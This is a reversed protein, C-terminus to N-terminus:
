PITVPPPRVLPGLRRRRHGGPRPRRRGAAFTVEQVEETYGVRSELNDYVAQLDAASPADFSQGGTIEAIQELTETDPPVDLTVPQGFEDNVDVTGEPTGLAITYIPM